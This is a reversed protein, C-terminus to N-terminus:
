AGDGGSYRYQLRDAITNALELLEEDPVFIWGKHRDIRLGWRKEGDKYDAWKFRSATHHIEETM